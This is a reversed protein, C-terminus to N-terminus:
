RDGRPVVCCGTTKMGEVLIFRQLQRGKEIEEIGAFAYPYLSFPFLGELSWFFSLSEEM